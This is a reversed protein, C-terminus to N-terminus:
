ARKEASSVQLNEEWTREKVVGGHGEVETERLYTIVRNQSSSGSAKEEGKGGGRKGGYPGNPFIKQEEFDVGRTNRKEKTHVDVDKGADYFIRSGLKLSMRQDREAQINKRAKEIGHARKKETARHSYGV